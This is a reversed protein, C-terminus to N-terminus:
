VTCQMYMYMKYIYLCTRKKLSLHSPLFFSALLTLCVFLAFCCLVSLIYVYQKRIKWGSYLRSYNSLNSVAFTSSNHQAAIKQLAREHQAPGSINIENHRVEIKFGPPLFTNFGVILDPHGRFLNSVRSIVGPTDISTPLSSPPPPSICTHLCHCM